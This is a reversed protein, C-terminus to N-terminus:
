KSKDKEELFLELDKEELNQFCSLIEEKTFELVKIVKMLKATQIKKEPYLELKVVTNSTVGAQTALSAQSLHLSNRKERVLRQILTRNQVIIRGKSKEKKQIFPRFEDENLSLAEQLKVFTSYLIKSYYGLELHSISTKSKYGCLEAVEQQTLNKALRASRIKDALIENTIDYIYDAYGDLKIVKSLKHFNREIIFKREGTELRSIIDDSVGTMRSLETTSLGLALRQKLIETGIGNFRM